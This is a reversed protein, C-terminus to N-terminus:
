CCPRQTRAAPRTVPRRQHDHRALHATRRAPYGFCVRRAAFAKYPTALARIDFPSFRPAAGDGLGPALHRATGWGRLPPLIYGVAGATPSMRDCVDLGPPAYSCGARNARVGRRPEGMASARLGMARAM